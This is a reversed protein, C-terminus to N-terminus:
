LLFTVPGDNTLSIQMNAAFKGTAVTLSSHRLVAVFQEYLQEARAPSAASSFSPRRGKRTDAVLTFQSVALLDGRIDLVSLNMKDGADGFVRYNLVREAMRTINAEDDTHEIGILLLLGKGIRSLTQGDVDVQAQTVRQLLVKM